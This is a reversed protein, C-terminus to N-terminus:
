VRSFALLFPPPNECVCACAREHKAQFVVLSTSSHHEHLGTICTPLTPNHLNKLIKKLFTYKPPPTDDGGLDLIVPVGHLRAHVAVAVNVADPIERQLLVVSAQAVAPLVTAEWGEPRTDGCFFIHNCFFLISAVSILLHRGFHL